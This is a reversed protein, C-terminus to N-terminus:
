RNQLNLDWGSIDAMKLFIAKWTKMNEINDKVRKRHNTFAKKFIEIQKQVVFPSM